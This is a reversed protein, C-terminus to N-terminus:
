LIVRSVIHFVCVRVCPSPSYLLSHLSYSKMMVIMSKFPVALYLPHHSPAWQVRQKRHWTLLMLATPLPLLSLFFIRRIILHASSASRVCLALLLSHWTSWHGSIFGFHRCHSSSQGCNCAFEECLEYTLERGPVRTYLTWLLGGGGGGRRRKVENLTEWESQDM